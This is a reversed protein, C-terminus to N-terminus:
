FTLLGHHMDTKDLSQLSCVTDNYTDTYHTNTHTHTNKDM